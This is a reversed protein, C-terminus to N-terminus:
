DPKNSARKKELLHGFMSVFLIIAPVLQLLIVASVVALFMWSYIGGKMIDINRKPDALLFSASLGFAVGLFYYGIKSFIHM